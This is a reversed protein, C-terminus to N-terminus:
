GILCFFALILSQREVVSEASVASVEIEGIRCGLRLFTLM